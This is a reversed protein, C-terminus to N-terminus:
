TTQTVGDEKTHTVSGVPNGSCPTLNHFLSCELVERAAFENNAMRVVQTSQLMVSPQTRLSRCPETAADKM